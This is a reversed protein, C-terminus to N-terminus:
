RHRRERGREGSPGFAAAAEFLASPTPRSRSTAAPSRGGPRRRARVASATAEAAVADDLYNVTVDWGRAGALRCAAAGIGRAGGTVLVHMPPEPSPPTSRRAPRSWARCRTSRSTSCRRRPGTSRQDRRGERHRRRRDGDARRRVHGEPRLRQRRYAACPLVRKQDKLYAEAMEIAAAAPAYFASGTKLLGVIEAGGDRTRQVIADLKEQTTWGMEVLDPLPIGAVTSYRALPVMSDGHGGLVFASVDKVSVGFEEALFYRFRARTSSAPWAASRRPPLGSFERLAWVM